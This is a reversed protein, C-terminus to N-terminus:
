LIFPIGYKNFKAMEDQLYTQKLTDITGDTKSKKIFEDVKTKLVKDGKPLAIGWGSVNTIPTTIIKTQPHKEQFSYITIPDYIAVQSQNSAVDLLAADMSEFSKVKAKPANQAIWYASLTGTKVATTVNENNIQDLTTVQAQESTLAYLAPNAYSESFDVRKQREETISMSSIIMDISKNELAPILADYKMAVIEAKKGLSAALKEAYAVSFGSPKGESNITEFPAYELEMGFKITEKKLVASEEQNQNVVSVCGTLTVLSFLIILLRKVRM